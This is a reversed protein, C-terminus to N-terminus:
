CNPLLSLSSFLEIVRPVEVYDDESQLFDELSCKMVKRYNIRSNLVKIPPPVSNWIRVGLANSPNSINSLVIGLSGHTVKMFLDYELSM